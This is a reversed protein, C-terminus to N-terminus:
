MKVGEKPIAYFDLYALDHRKTEWVKVKVLTKNDNQLEIVLETIEDLRSELKNPYKVLVNNILKKM